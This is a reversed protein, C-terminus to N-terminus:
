RVLRVSLVESAATGYPADQPAEAVSRSPVNIPPTQAVADSGHARRSALGVPALDLGSTVLGRCSAVRSASYAASRDGAAVALRM